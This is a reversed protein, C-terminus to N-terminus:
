SGDYTGSKASSQSGRGRRCVEVAGATCIAVEESVAWMWPTVIWCLRYIRGSGARSDTLFLVTGSGSLLSTNGLGGMMRYEGEFRGM